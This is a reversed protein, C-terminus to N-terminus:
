VPSARAVREAAPRFEGRYAIAVERAAAAEEATDFNGVHFYKGDIGYYARYRNTAKVLSVGQFGSTNAKSLGVNFLNQRHTALRLNVM